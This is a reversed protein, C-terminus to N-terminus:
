EPKEQGTQDHTRSGAEGARGNPRGSGTGRRFFAVKDVLKAFAWEVAKALAWTVLLILAAIAVKELVDMAIDQDYRYNGIRM